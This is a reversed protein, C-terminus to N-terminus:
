KLGTFLLLESSAISELRLPLGDRILSLGSVKVTSGLGDFQVAYMKAPDLGRPKFTYTDADTSRIRTTLAWARSRDPSAFEVAFWGSSQVGGRANVPEHHFM